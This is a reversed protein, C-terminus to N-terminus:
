LGDQKNSFITLKNDMFNNVIREKNITIASGGFMSGGRHSENLVTMSALKKKLIGTEHQSM